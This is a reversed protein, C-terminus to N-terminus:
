LTAEKELDTKSVYLPPKTKTVSKEPALKENDGAIQEYVNRMDTPKNPEREPEDPTDMGYPEVLGIWIRNYVQKLLDPDDLHPTRDWVETNEEYKDIFSKGFQKERLAKLEEGKAIMQEGIIRNAIKNFFHLALYRPVDETSKPNVHHWYGDFMYSFKKDLPNYIRITDRSKREMERRILSMSVEREQAKQDLPNM